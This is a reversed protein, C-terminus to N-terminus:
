VYLLTQIFPVAPVDKIQDYFQVPSVYLLFVMIAVAKHAVPFRETLMERSLRIHGELM